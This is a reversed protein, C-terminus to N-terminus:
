RLLEGETDESACSDSTEGEDETRPPPWLLTTKESIFEENEVAERWKTANIRENPKSSAQLLMVAAEKAAM